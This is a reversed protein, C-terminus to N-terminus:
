WSGVSIGSRSPPRCGAGRRCARPLREQVPHALEADGPEPEVRRRPPQRQRRQADEVEGPRQRALRLQQHEVLHRRRQRRVQDLPHQPHHPRLGVGATRHDVDRVAEGLDGLEAVPRRHQAVARGDAVDRDLGPDLVPDDLHHEAGRQGLGGRRRARGPRAAARASGGRSRSLWTAEPAFSSSTENSRCSPSTSPTTASSPWPCSSSKSTSAPNRRGVPPLMSTSPRRTAKRWGASAMAAPSVSTGPLRASASSASRETRSFMARGSVASGPRQPSIGIRRSPSRTAAAISRSCISVRACPSTRRSEPPLWCFTVIARQTAVPTRVSSSKSGVRPM